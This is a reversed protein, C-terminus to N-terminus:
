LTKCYFKLSFFFQLFSLELRESLNDDGFSCEDYAADEDDDDDDGDDDGGQPNKTRVM